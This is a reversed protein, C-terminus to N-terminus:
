TSVGVALLTMALASEPGPEPEPKKGWSLAAVALTALM